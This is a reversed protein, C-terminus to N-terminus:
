HERHARREGAEQVQGEAVEVEEGLPELRDDALVLGHQGVRGGLDHEQEPHGGHDRQEAEEHGAEDVDAVLHPGAGEFLVDELVAPVVVGGHRPEHATRARLEEVGEGPEVAVDDIAHDVADSPPRAPNRCAALPDAVELVAVHAGVGEADHDARHQEDGEEEGPHQGQRPRGGGEGLQGRLGPFGNGIRGTITRSGRRPATIMPSVGEVRGSRCRRVAMAVETHVPTSLMTTSNWNSEDSGPKWNTVDHVQTWCNSM